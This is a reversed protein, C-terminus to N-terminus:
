ELIARPNKMWWQLTTLFYKKEQIAAWFGLGESDPCYVVNYYVKCACHVTGVYVCKEFTLHMLKKGRVRKFYSIALGDATRPTYYHLPSENERRGGRIAACNFWLGSILLSTEYLIIVVFLSVSSTHIHTVWGSDRKCSNDLTNVETSGLMLSSLSTSISGLNTPWTDNFAYSFQHEGAAVKLYLIQSVALKLLIHNSIGKHYM